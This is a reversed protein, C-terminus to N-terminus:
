LNKVLNALQSLLPDKIDAFAPMEGQGNSILTKIEEATLDTGQIEPFDDFGEGNAGHCRACNHRYAKKAEASIMQVSGNQVLNLQFIILLAAAIIILVAFFILSKKQCM